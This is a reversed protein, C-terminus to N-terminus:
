GTPPPAGTARPFRVLHITGRRGDVLLVGEVGFVHAYELLQRRTARDHVSTSGPGGKAEAVWLRGRREVVFDARVVFPEPRGDVEVVGERVVECAVIRCGARELVAAARAAGAAGMRRSRAPARARVVRAAWLAARAGVVVLTVAAVAWAWTPLRELM